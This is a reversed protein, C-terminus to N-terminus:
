FFVDLHELPQMKDFVKFVDLFALRADYDNDFSKYIEHISSLLQNIFLDGTKSSSQDTSILTNEMFFEFVSHYFLRELIKRCIHM